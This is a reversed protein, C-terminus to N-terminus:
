CRWFREFGQAHYIDPKRFHTLASAFGSWGHDKGRFYVHVLRGARKRPKSAYRTARLPLPAGTPRHGPRCRLIVPRGAIRSNVARAM